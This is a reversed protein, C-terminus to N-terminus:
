RLRAARLCLIGLRDLVFIIQCTQGVTRRCFGPVVLLSKELVFEGFRVDVILAFHLALGFSKAHRVQVEGLILHEVEGSEQQAALLSGQGLTILVLRAVRPMVNLFAPPDDLLVVAHSAVLDNGPWCVM